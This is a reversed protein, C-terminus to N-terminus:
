RPSNILLRASYIQADIVEELAERRFDRVDTKEFAGYQILGAHLRNILMKAIELEIPPLDRLRQVLGGFLNLDQESEFERMILAHDKLPFQGSGSCLPCDHTKVKSRQSVM